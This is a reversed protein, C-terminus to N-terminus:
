ILTYDLLQPSWSVESTKPLFMFDHFPWVKQGKTLTEARYSLHHCRQDFKKTFKKYTNM